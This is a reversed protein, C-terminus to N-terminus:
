NEGIDIKTRIIKIIIKKKQTRESNIKKKIKDNMIIIKKRYTLIPRM